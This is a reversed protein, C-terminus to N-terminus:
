AFGRTSVSNAQLSRASRLPEKRELASSALMLLWLALNAVCHSRTEGSLALRAIHTQPKSDKVLYQSQLSSTDPELLPACSSQDWGEISTGADLCSFPVCCFGAVSGSLKLLLQAYLICM